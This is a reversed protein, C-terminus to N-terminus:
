LGLITLRPCVMRNKKDCFPSINEASGTDAGRNVVAIQRYFPFLKFFDGILATILKKFQVTGHFTSIIKKNQFEFWVQSM